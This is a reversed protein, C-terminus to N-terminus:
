NTHFIISKLYDSFMVRYQPHHQFTVYFTDKTIVTDYCVTKFHKFQNCILQELLIFYKPRMKLINPYCKM